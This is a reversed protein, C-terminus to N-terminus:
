PRKWGPKGGGDMEQQDPVHTTDNKRLHRGGAHKGKRFERFLITLQQYREFGLTKRAELLFHFRERSLDSRAKELKKFQDVVAKEDLTEKELLNELEFRQREVASKLDILRRRSNVFLDDLQSKEEHSLNLRESLRPIRWWKGSPVEQAVSVLPACMLMVVLIAGLIKKLM